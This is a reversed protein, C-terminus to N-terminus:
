RQSFADQVHVGSAKPAVIAGSEKISSRRQKSRTNRPPLDKLAKRAIRIKKKNGSARATLLNDYRKRYSAIAPTRSKTKLHVIKYGNKRLKKLLRPIANATNRKIDHFLVIGKGRSKLRSMVHSIMRNPSFGRTDGSDIDISFVAINRSALHAEMAKTRALYPFRFVPVIETGAAAAVAAMGREIQAIGRTKGSRSLFAHSWTHSGLSHGERVIRKITRPFAIAMRGVSFFTARTCEKALAELIKNTYRPLPGDDFTLLVEKDKLIESGSYNVYGYRPGGRTDITITRAVGLRSKSPKCAKKPPTVAVRKAVKRPEKTTLPSVPKDAAQVVPQLSGASLLAALSTTAVLGPLTLRM